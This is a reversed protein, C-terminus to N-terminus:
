CDFLPLLLMERVRSFRSRMASVQEAQDSGDLRCFQDQCVRERLMSDSKPLHANPTRSSQERKETADRLGMLILVQSFGM